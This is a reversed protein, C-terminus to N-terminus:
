YKKSERMFLTKAMLKKYYDDDKCVNLCVEMKGSILSVDSKLESFESEINKNKEYESQPIVLDFIIDPREKKDDIKGVSKIIEEASISADFESPFYLTSCSLFSIYYEEINTKKVYGNLWEEMRDKIAKSYYAERKIYLEENDNAYVEVYYEEEDITVKVNYYLVTSSDPLFRGGAVGKYTVVAKVGYKDNFYKEVLPDVQDELKELADRSLQVQGDNNNKFLSCSTLSFLGIIGAVMIIKSLHKRLHGM